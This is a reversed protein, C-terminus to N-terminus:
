SKPALGVPNFAWEVMDGHIGEPLRSIRERFRLKGSQLYSYCHHWGGLTTLSGMILICLANSLPDIQCMLGFINSADRNFTFTEKINIRIVLPQSMESIPGKRAVTM